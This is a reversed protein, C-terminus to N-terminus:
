RSSTTRPMPRWCRTTAGRAGVPPRSRWGCATWRAMASWCWSTTRRWGPRGVLVSEIQSPYVNVGRIILMDDNRGTVRLIRVHTRGCACPSHDLRTIDRTRYRLMPLAQKTLTTIVLEGPEGEPV